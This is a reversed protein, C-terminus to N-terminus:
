RRTRIYLPDDRDRLLYKVAIGADRLKATMNRAVQTVWDGTPNTTIDARFVLHSRACRSRRSRSTALWGLDAPRLYPRPRNRGLIELEHRLVLM